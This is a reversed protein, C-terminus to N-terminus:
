RRPNILLINKLTGHILKENRRGKRGGKRRKEKGREKRM